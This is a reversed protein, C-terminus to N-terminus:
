FRPSRRGSVKFGKTKLQEQALELFMDSMDRINEAPDTWSESKGDTDIKTAAWLKNNVDCRYEITVTLLKKTKVRQSETQRVEEVQEKILQKLQKVTIKM